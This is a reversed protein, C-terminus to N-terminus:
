SAIIQVHQLYQLRASKLTTCKHLIKAAIKERMM